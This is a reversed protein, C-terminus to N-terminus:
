LIILPSPTIKVRFSGRNKSLREGEDAGRVFLSLKRGWFVVGGFRKSNEVSLGFLTLSYSCFILINLINNHSFDRHFRVSFKRRFQRPQLDATLIVEFQRKLPPRFDRIILCSVPDHHGDDGDDHEYEEGDTDGNEDNKQFRTLNWNKFSVKLLPLVQSPYYGKGMQKWTWWILCTLRFVQVSKM